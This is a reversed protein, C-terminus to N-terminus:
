NIIKLKPMRRLNNSLQSSNEKSKLEEKTTIQSTALRACEWQTYYDTMTVVNQHMKIEELSEIAHHVCIKQMISETSMLANQSKCLVHDKSKLRMVKNTKLHNKFKWRMKKLPKQAANTQNKNTGMQKNMLQLKSM